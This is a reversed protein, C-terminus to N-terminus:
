YVLKILSILKFYPHTPPLGNLLEEIVVQKTTRTDWTYKELLLPKLVKNVEKSGFTKNCIDLLNSLYTIKGEIYTDYEGSKPSIILGVKRYMSELSYTINGLFYGMGVNSRKQVTGEVYYSNGKRKNTDLGLRVLYIDINSDYHNVDNVYERISKLSVVKRRKSSTYLKFEKELLKKLDALIQPTNYIQGSRFNIVSVLHDPDINTPSYYSWGVYQSIDNFILYGREIFEEISYDEVEQLYAKVGSEVKVAIM